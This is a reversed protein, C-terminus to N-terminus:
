FLFWPESFEKKWLRDLDYKLNKTTLKRMNKKGLISNKEIFCDHEDYNNLNDTM